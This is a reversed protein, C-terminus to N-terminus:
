FYFLLCFHFLECITYEEIKTSYNIFSYIALFLCPILTNNPKKAIKSSNCGIKSLYISIFFLKPIM